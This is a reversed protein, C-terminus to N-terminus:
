STACHRASQGDHLHLQNRGREQSKSLAIGARDLILDVSDLPVFKTYGFSATVLVEAGGDELRFHHHRITKRINESLRQGTGNEVDPILVAFMSKNYRCVLDDDRLSRCVLSGVRCIFEQVVKEGFRSRLHETKDIKILLLGSEVRHKQGIELLSELNVRFADRDPLGTLEDEPSREWNLALEDSVPEMMLATEAVLLEQQEDVISTLMEDLRSRQSDLGELQPESLRADPFKQLSQCIKQTADFSETVLTLLYGLSKQARRFNRETAGGAYYIGFFFSLGAICIFCVGIILWFIPPVVMAASSLVAHSATSHSAFLSFM